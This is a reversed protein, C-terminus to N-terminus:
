GGGRRSDALGAATQYPQASRWLGLILMGARLLVLKNTSYPMTSYGTKQIGRVLSPASPQATSIYDEAMVTTDPLM